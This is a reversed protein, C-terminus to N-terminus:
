SYRVLKATYNKLQATGGTAEKSFRLSLNYTGASVNGLSFCQSRWMSEASGTDKHEEAYVPTLINGNFELDFEMDNGTSHPRVALSIDLFCDGSQSITVSDTYITTKTTTNPLTVTSAESIFAEVNMPGTPGPVGQIGQNGQIGQIGQPGTDGIMTHPIGDEGMYYPEQASGTDYIYRKVRGVSPASPHSVRVPLNLTADSM